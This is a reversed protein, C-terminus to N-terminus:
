SNTVDKILVISGKAITWVRTADSFEIDFVDGTQLSASQTDSLNIVITGATGVKEQPTISTILDYDGTSPNLRKIEMLMDWDSIILPLKADDTVYVEFSATDGRVVTWEVTPPEVGVTYKKNTAM